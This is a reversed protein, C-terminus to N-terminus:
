LVEGYFSSCGCRSCTYPSFGKNVYTWIQPLRRYSSTCGCKTCIVAYKYPAKERKPIGYETMSTTRQVQYQPYIKNIKAAQAKFPAQHNMCGPITHVLEHIMCGMLRRDFLEDDPIQEFVRSVKVKITNPAPKSVTAWFSKANSMTIILKEPRKYTPCCEELVESAKWIYDRIISENLTM